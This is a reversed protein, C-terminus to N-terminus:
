SRSRATAILQSLTAEPANWLWNGIAAPVLALCAFLVWFDPKDIAVMIGVIAVTAVWSALVLSKRQAFTMSGDYHFPVEFRQECCCM